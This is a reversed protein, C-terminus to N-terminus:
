QKGFMIKHKEKIKQQREKNYQKYCDKCYPHLCDKNKMDIYFEIIDKEEKCKTCVKTNM